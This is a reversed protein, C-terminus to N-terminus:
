VSEFIKSMNETSLSIKKGLIERSSPVLKEPTLRIKRRDQASMLRSTVIAVVYNFYPM